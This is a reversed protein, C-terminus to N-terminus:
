KKSNEVYKGDNAKLLANFKVKFERQSSYYYDSLGNPVNGAFRQGVVTLACKFQERCRHNSGTLESMQIIKKGTNTWAIRSLTWQEAAYFKVQYPM